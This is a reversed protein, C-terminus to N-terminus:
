EVPQVIKRIGRWPVEGRRPKPVSEDLSLRTGFQDRPSDDLFFGLCSGAVKAETPTLYRPPFRHSAFDPAVEGLTGPFWGRVQKAGRAAFQGSLHHRSALFVSILLLGFSVAVHGVYGSDIVASQHTGAEMDVPQTPAVLVICGPPLVQSARNQYASTFLSAPAHGAISTHTRIMARVVAWFAFSRLQERTPASGEMRGLSILTPLADDELSNLWGSNCDSCVGNLTMDFQSIPRTQVFERSLSASSEWFTLSSAPPFQERLANRWVHERTRKGSTTGCFLCRRGGEPEAM